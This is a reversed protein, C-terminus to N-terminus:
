SLTTGTAGPVDAFTGGGNTSVQWQVAPAPTGGAAATFTATQGEGVAQNVPQLTIFAAQFQRLTVDNGDNGTYSVQFSLGNITVTSGQPLGAFTGGVADATGDNAILTVVQGPS